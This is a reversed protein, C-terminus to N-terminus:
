PLALYVKIDLVVCLRHSHAYGLNLQSEYDHRLFTDIARKPQEKLSCRVGSPLHKLRM